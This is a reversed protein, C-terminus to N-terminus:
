LQCHRRSSAATSLCMFCAPWDRCAPVVPTAICCSPLQQTRRHLFVVGQQWCSCSVDAAIAVRSSTQVM